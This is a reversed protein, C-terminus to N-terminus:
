QRENLLCLPLNHWMGIEGFRKLQPLAATQEIAIANDMVLNDSEPRHDTDDMSPKPKKTSHLRTIAPSNGSNFATLTM